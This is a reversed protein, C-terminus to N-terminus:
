LESKQYADKEHALGKWIAVLCLAASVFLWLTDMGSGLGTFYAGEVGTWTASTIPSGM